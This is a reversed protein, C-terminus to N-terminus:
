VARALSAPSAESLSTIVAIPIATEPIQIQVFIQGMQWAAKRYCDNEDQGSM